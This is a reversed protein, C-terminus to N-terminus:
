YSQLIM